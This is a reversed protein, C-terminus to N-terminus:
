KTGLLETAHEDAREGHKENGFQEPKPWLKVRCFANASDGRRDKWLGLLKIRDRGV